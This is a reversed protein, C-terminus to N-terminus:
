SFLRSLFSPPDDPPQPIGLAIERERRLIAENDIERQFRYDVMITGLAFAALNAFFVVNLAIQFGRVNFFYGALYGFYLMFRKFGPDFGSLPELITVLLIAAAALWAITWSIEGTFALAAFMAFENTRDFVVELKRGLPSQLNYTRAVGGDIGDVIQSLAMLLLGDLVHGAAVVAAAVIGIVFGVASIQNPTLGLTEHFFRIPINLITDSRSSM